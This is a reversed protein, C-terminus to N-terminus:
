WVLTANRKKQNPKTWLFQRSYTCKRKGKAFDFGLHTKDVVFGRIYPDHMIGRGPGSFWSFSSSKLERSKGSDEQVKREKLLNYWRGMYICRVVQEILGAVIWQLLFPASWNGTFIGLLMPPTKDVPEGVISDQNGTIAFSSGIGYQEAIHCGPFYIIVKQLLLLSIFM